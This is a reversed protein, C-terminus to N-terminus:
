GHCNVIAKEERGLRAAQKPRTRIFAKEDTRRPTARQKALRDRPPTASDIQAPVLKNTELGYAAEARVWDSGVSNKSWLVVVARAASIAEEIIRDFAQGSHLRRDWWVSWGHGELATALRQAIERDLRAYSVFIDAM